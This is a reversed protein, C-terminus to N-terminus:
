APAPWKSLLRSLWGRKPEVKTIPSEWIRIEANIISKIKKLSSNLDAVLEVFKGYPMKETPEIYMILQRLNSIKSNTLELYNIQDRLTKLIHAINSKDLVHGNAGWRLLLEAYYSLNIESLYADHFEDPLQYLFYDHQVKPPLMRAMEFFTKRFHNIVMMKATEKSHVLRALWALRSRLNKQQPTLKAM